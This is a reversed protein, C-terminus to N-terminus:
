FDDPVFSSRLRYFVEGIGQLLATSQWLALLGEPWFLSFLTMGGFKQPCISVWQLSAHLNVCFVGGLCCAEDLSQINFYVQISRTKQIRTQTRSTHTHIHNKQLAVTLLFAEM